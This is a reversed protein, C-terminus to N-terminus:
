IKPFLRKKKKLWSFSENLFSILYTVDDINGKCLPRSYKIIFQRFSLGPSVVFPNKWEEM